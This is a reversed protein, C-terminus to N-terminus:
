TDRKGDRIVEIQQRSYLEGQGIGPCRGGAAQWSRPSSTNMDWFPFTRCQRPRVTYIGCGAPTLLVCDGNAHELLSVRFLVRRCFRSMVADESLNLRRAIAAIEERELWVYGPEGTCCARCRKCKFRLGAAYWPAKKDPSGSRLRAM